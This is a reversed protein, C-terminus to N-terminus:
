SHTYETDLATGTSGAKLSFEPSPTCYGACVCVCVSACIHGSHMWTPHPPTRLLLTTIIRAVQFHCCSQTYTQHLHSPTFIRERLMKWGVGSGPLLPLCHLGPPLPHFSCLSRPKTSRLSCRSRSLLVISAILLIKLLNM